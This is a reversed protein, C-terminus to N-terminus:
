KRLMEDLTGHSDGVAVRDHEDCAIVCTKGGISRRGDLERVASEKDELARSLASAHELL